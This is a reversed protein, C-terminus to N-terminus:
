HKMLKKTWLIESSNHDTINIFYVGAKLAETNVNIKDRSTIESHISRGTIDVINIRITIAQGNNVILTNNFPNPNASFETTEVLAEVSAPAPAGFTKVTSTAIYL